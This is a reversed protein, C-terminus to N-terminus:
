FLLGRRKIETIIQELEVNIDEANGDIILDPNQPEEFTDNFGTLNKIKGSQAKKYLGKPDRKICEQLDTKVYVEIYEGKNKEILRKNKLRSEKFPAINAAVCIGNHKVIENAVFGIREINTKRDEVSFGLGKSLNLRVVDGDLLTINRNIIQEKLKIILHNAYTSKGSAPIGVFYVCFGREHKPKISKKLEAIIDEFSFWDPLPEGKNLLERQKTGSLNLVTETPQVQDIPLYKDSEQVYVIMKSKIMKIGIENQHQELLEQAEYPGYFDSGDQKKFSPGAHDRGVIFHTAGYNQRIIAHWLAERPGAMRMSLPLLALIVKGEPYYQLLKKYCNVRLHYDIDTNQTVGVVPNLLLISEEGAEKLANLTLHFHSKHMPNRTQFGVMNKAGSQKFLTKLEAPSKRLKVFDYHIVNRIKEVRGGVYFRNGADFNAKMIKQYPHNLDFCGFVQKCETELDYKYIDEVFLTALDIGTEDKLIIKTENQFAEKQDYNISLCIPIPFLTGNKLRMDALVSEYDAQKLFGDLPQFGGELLLELDCLERKNLIKSLM